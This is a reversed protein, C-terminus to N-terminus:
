NKGLTRFDSCTPPQLEEIPLTKTKPAIVHGHMSARTPIDLHGQGMIKQSINEWSGLIFKISSM